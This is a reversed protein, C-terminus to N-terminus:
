ADCRMRDIGDTGFAEGMAGGHALSMVDGELDVHRLGFSLYLVADALVVIAWVGEQLM